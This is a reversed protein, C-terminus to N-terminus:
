ALYGLDDDNQFAPQVDLLIMVTDNLGCLHALWAQPQASGAAAWFAHYYIM